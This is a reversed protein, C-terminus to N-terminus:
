AAAHRRQLPAVIRGDPEHERVAHGAECAGARFEEHARVVGCMDSKFLGSRVQRQRSQMDIDRLDDGVLGDAFATLNNTREARFPGM